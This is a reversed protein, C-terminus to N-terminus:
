SSSQSEISQRQERMQELFSEVPVQFKHRFLDILPDETGSFETESSQFMSVSDDSSPTELGDPEVHLEPSKDGNARLTTIMRLVQDRQETTTQLFEVGMGFEPHAVLVVGGARIELDGTQIKLIVRTGRPFPSNTTLYGGGLSLDTLRCNVPPDDPEPEPLQSNLWQRLTNRQEDTADKFRVGAQDGKGEWALEGHLELKKDMGPLDLLFLLSNEKAVRGSFQIAMGGECLDLTTAQYRGSGYCEVPIQVAVRMQLRRERKMLARVARFSAKAREVALPKHLVFHAGMEFGGKLGVPSEVLVIGLARKNVPSAKAGQFVSRTEEANTGDVILAEFRQRTIQRIADDACSCHKVDIDLGNLVRRLVRVTKEDSSLLLAKM